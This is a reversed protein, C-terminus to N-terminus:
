PGLAAAIRCVIRRTQLTLDSDTLNRRGMSRPQYSPRRAPPGRCSGSTMGTAGPASRGNRFATAPSPPTRGASRFAAARAAPAAAPHPPPQPMKSRATRSGPLRGAPSLLTANPDAAADPARCHSAQRPGGAARSPMASAAPPAAAARASSRRGALPPPMAGWLEYVAHQFCSPM